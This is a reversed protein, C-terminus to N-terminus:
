RRRAGRPEGSASRRRDDANTSTQSCRIGSSITRRSGSRTSSTSSGDNSAMARSSRGSVSSAAAARCAAAPALAGVAVACGASARAAPRRRRALRRRCRVARRPAPPVPARAAACGRRSGRSSPARPSSAAARCRRMSAVRWRRALQQRQEALLLVRAHRDEVLREVVDDAEDEDLVQDCSRGASASAPGIAGSIRGACKTGSVLRTGSSSFSNWRLRSCIAITTSSYPPVAPRTVDFIQEFLDDALDAVLVVDLDLAITSSPWRCTGHEAAADVDFLHGVQHLDVDFALAELGDAAVQQRAEAPHRRRRASRPRRGRRRPARLRARRMVRTRMRRSRCGTACRRSGRRVIFAPKTASTPRGLAPLDM